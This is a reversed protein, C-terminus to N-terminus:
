ETLRIPREWRQSWDSERTEDMQPHVEQEDWDTGDVPILKLTEPLKWIKGCAGCRVRYAFSDDIHGNRGCTCRFDACLETGKWQVWVSPAPIGDTM